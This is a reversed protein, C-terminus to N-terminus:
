FSKSSLFFSPTNKVDGAPPVILAILLPSFLLNIETSISTLLLSSNSVKSIPSLLFSILDVKIFEPKHFENLVLGKLLVGLVDSLGSLTKMFQQSVFGSAM